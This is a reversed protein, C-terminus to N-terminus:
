LPVAEERGGDGVWLRHALLASNQVRLLVTDDADSLACPGLAEGVSVAEVAGDDLLMSLHAVSYWWGHGPGDPQLDELTHSHRFLFVRRQWSLCSLLFLEQLICRLPASCFLLQHM